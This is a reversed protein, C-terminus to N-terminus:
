LACSVCENSNGMEELEENLIRAYYITKIEGSPYQALTKGREDLEKTSPKGKSQAYMMNRVLDRTSASSKYGLTM